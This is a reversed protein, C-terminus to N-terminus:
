EGSEMALIGYTYADKILASLADSHHDSPRMNVLDGNRKFQFWFARLPLGSCPWSQRFIEIERKSVSVNFCTGHNKFQM